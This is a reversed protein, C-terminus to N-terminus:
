FYNFFGFDAPQINGEADLLLNEAKLDRHVVCHLHCVNVTNVIQSFIKAAQHESMKKNAVLWDDAAIETNIYIDTDSDMVQYLKIINKHSLRRM